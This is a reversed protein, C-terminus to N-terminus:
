NAFEAIKKDLSQNFQYGHNSGLLTILQGTEISELMSVQFVQREVDERRLAVAVDKAAESTSDAFLFYGINEIQPCWM